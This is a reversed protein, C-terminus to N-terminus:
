EIAFKFEYTSKNSTLKVFYVGKGIVSTAADPGLRM